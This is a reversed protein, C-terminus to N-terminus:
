KEKRVQAIAAEIAELRAKLEANEADRKAIDASFKVRDAERQVQQEKIAAVAVATLRSYDMGTVKGQDDYFVVEPFVRAVDEAVFGIDHERGPREKAFEPNWDFSVGELKLLKELADSLPLVNHKFRGSSPVALNNALVNGNVTLRQTPNLTGIGVNGTAAIMTMTASNAGLTTGHGIVLNGAGEGNASGTSILRWYRGGASTNRINFWTGITNNSETISVFAFPSTVHFATDPAATGIGVEGGTYAIGGSVSTWPSFSNSVNPPIGTVGSWPVSQASAAIQAVDANTANIANIATSATNAENATTATVAYTATAATNAIEAVRALPTSTIAQRPSLTVFPSGPPASVEINLWLAQSTDIVSGFDLATTILGNDVGTFNRTIATGVDSLSLPAVPSNCLTFRVNAAGAIPIDNATLQGQYTFSTPTPLPATQNFTISWGGAITGSDGSARDTVYLSWLGNANTSLLPALSTGYPQAPAPSPFDAVPPYVSCDYVGSLVDVNEQPLVASGNPIFTLTDNVADGGDNTNAMLLIRRGSPSVLLVNVDAVYTHSFGSLTVSVYGISNPAGTVVFSVPYSESPGISPIVIPDPSSYTQASAGPTAFGLAIVLASMVTAICETLPRM